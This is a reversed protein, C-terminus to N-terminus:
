SPLPANMDGVEGGFEDAICCATFTGSNTVSSCASSAGGTVSAGSLGDCGNMSCFVVYVGAGVETGLKDGVSMLGARLMADDDDVTRGDVDGCTVKACVSLSSM